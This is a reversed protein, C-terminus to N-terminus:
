LRGAARGAMFGTSFAFQLNFGGCLGDIDILEGAAYVGPLNKVMLNEDLCTVDIGGSCTQASDYGGVGTIRIKMESLANVLSCGTAEMYECIADAVRDNIFGALVERIDRKVSGDAARSNLADVIEIVGESDYEPCFNVLLSVARGEMLARAALSSLQFAVIGSIGEETFQIEGSERACEKDDILLTLEGQWRAGAIGKLFSDESVLKCLAPVVKVLPIGLKKCLKYGFGDSGTKPYSRGGCCMICSDFVERTMSGDAHGLIVEIGGEIRSIGTIKIECRVNVGLQLLAQEFAKVVSAAQDSHPYLLEGRSRVFLGMEHFLRVTDEPGFNEIVAKAFLPHTGRYYRKINEDSTDCLKYNSFNCRGNGTAYIKKGLRDGREFLTVSGGARAASIAAMM